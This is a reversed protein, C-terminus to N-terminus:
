YEKTKKYNSATGLTPIDILEEKQFTIFNLKTDVCEECVHATWRELDKKSAYGWNSYLKMYEYGCDTNCSKGCSDCTLDKRVQVEEQRTEFHEM